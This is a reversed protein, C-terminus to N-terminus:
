ASVGFEPEAFMAASSPPLPDIMLQETSIDFTSRALLECVQDDSESPELGVRPQDGGCLLHELLQNLELTLTDSHKAAPTRHPAAM